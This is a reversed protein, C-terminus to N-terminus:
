QSPRDAPSTQKRAHATPLTRAHPRNKTHESHMSREQARATVSSVPQSISKATSSRARGRPRYFTGADCLSGNLQEGPASPLPLGIRRLADAYLGADCAAAARVQALSSANLTALQWARSERWVNGKPNVGHPRLSLSQRLGEQLRPEDEACPWHAAACLARLTAPLCGMVGTLDFSALRRRAEALPGCGALSHFGRQNHTWSDLTYVGAQLGEAHALWAPLSGAHKVGRGGGAPAPERWMPPWMRYASVLHSMPERSTVVTLLTGNLSAYLRRLRGLAPAVEQWYRRKGYGHFEAAVALDHVPPPSPLICRRPDWVDRYSPFIEPYLAMFCSSHTFDFLYSLRAPRGTVQKYLYKM